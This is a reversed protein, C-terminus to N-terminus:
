GVGVEVGAPLEKEARLREVTPDDEGKPWLHFGGQEVVMNWVGWIWNGDGENQGRYVVPHADVYQKVMECKGTELEYRGAFDFDGVCDSGHGMVRGGSFRLHVGRMWQRGTFGRQLWFGVWEGSPFREDTEDRGEGPNPRDDAM